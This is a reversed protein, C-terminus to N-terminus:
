PNQTYDFSLPQQYTPAQFVGHMFQAYMVSATPWHAFATDRSGQSLGMAGFPSMVPSPPPIYNISAPPRPMQGLQPFGTDYHGFTHNINQMNFPVQGFSQCPINRAYREYSRDYDPDTRDKERDKLIAVSSSSSGERIWSNKDLEATSIRCAENEDGGFSLNRQNTSASFPMDDSESGSPSNFIRARARDYEDKREEVSRLSSRKVGPENGESGAINSPRTRIVFKIQESKKNESQKMPIDSLRIAPFKSEVTKIALIKNGTGDLSTDQVMTQLGYHQAVRHVALRLYSTPFHQFEFIKQDANQMFKQIELEMRLVTIRHRPNQLVEVLFPDVMSDKHNVVSSADMGEEEGNGM